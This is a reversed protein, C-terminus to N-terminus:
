ILEKDTNKVFTNPDFYKDYVYHIQDLELTELIDEAIKQEPYLIDSINSFRNIDKKERAILAGKKILELREKTIHTNRNSLVNAVVDNLISVNVDSTITSINITSVDGIRSSYCQIYYVLGRKERVEQYLPSNLGSGLMSTIYKLVPLDVLDVKKDWIISTKEPFSISKELITNADYKWDTKMTLSRNKFTMVNDALVFDKSINIIMDPEEYQLAHFDLCDQFTYNEIDEKLGIPSYTGYFRRNFNISHTQVQETFCDLYEELVIKKEKIVDDETATFTKFREIIIDRFPALYKEIGQFYFVVFNDSTYANHSIGNSQFEDQLDDVVKCKLHELFHTIGFWGKKELNISGKYVLYLGSLATQSKLNIVM